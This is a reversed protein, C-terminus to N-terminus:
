TLKLDALRQEVFAQATIPDPYRDPRSASVSAPHARILHDPNFHVYYALDLHAAPRTSRIRHTTAPMLGNSARELMDGTMLLVSGPPADVPRWTETRDLVQLGLEEANLLLTVLNVDEIAGERRAAEGDAVAPYHTARLVNNGRQATDQFAEGPWGLAQAVCPLLRQGLSELDAHLQLAAAKFGVLGPLAENPWVNAMDIGAVAEPGTQWFEKLDHRDAGLPTEQGFPTYGRQGRLGPRHYPRKDAEVQDFFAQFRALAGEVARHAVGHGSLAAYSDNALRAALAAPEAIAQALSLPGTTM